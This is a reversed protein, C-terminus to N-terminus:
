GFDHRSTFIGQRELLSVMAEIKQFCAPDDLGEDNLITRIEVLAQYCTGEVLEQASLELGPIEVKAGHQWIAHALIEQYLDM